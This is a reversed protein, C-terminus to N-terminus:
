SRGGARLAPFEPFTIDVVGGAAKYNLWGRSSAEFALDLLEAQKRDLLDTWPSHVLTKGRLGCLHGMTVAYTLVVPTVLPRVRVKRVKGQLYGAQTWSSALNKATSHKTTAQFRGPYKEGLHIGIEQPGVVEGIPVGLVFPTMGRLLPDRAVATLFALMPRGAPDVNWYIRLFRFVLCAPDLAYLESLRRLSRQRTTRTPKGLVNQEVIALEYEGKRAIQPVRDLVLGLEELMMTRSTHVSMSGTRFGLSEPFRAAETGPFVRSTAQDDMKNLKAVVEALQRRLWRPRVIELTNGNMMDSAPGMDLTWADQKGPHQNVFHHSPHVSSFFRANRLMNVGQRTPLATRLEARPM